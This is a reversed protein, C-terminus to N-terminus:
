IIKISDVFRKFTQEEVEGAQESDIMNFSYIYDGKEIIISWTKCSYSKAHESSEFTWSWESDFGNCGSLNYPTINRITEYDNFLRGAGYAVMGVIKEFDGQIYDDEYLEIIDNKHNIFVTIAPSFKAHHEPRELGYKAIVLVPDGLEEWAEDKNPEFEDSLSQDSKLKGLDKISVFDWSRPKALLFGFKKNVYNDSNIAISQLPDLTLGALAIGLYELFKRRGLGM